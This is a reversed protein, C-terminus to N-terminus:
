NGNYFDELEESVFQNLVDIQDLIVAHNEIETTLEFM